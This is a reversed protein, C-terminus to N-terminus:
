HSTAQQKKLSAQKLAALGHSASHCLQKFQQYQHKDPLPQSIDTIGAIVVGIPKSGASVSMAMFFSPLREAVNMPLGGLVNDRNAAHVAIAASRQMLKTFLNNPQLRTQIGILPHDEGLGRQYLMRIASKERNPLLVAAFPLGIDDHIGELLSTMLTNWDGFSAADQELRSQLANFAQQHREAEQEAANEDIDAPLSETPLDQTQLDETPLDQAESPASVGSAGEAANPETAKQELNNQEPAESGDEELWPYLLDSFAPAVPSLLAHIGTSYASHQHRATNFQTERVRPILVDASKSLWHSIIQIWRQSRKSYPNIHLHWALSNAMVPTIEPRQCLHLLPRGKEKELDWPDYRRLMSWQAATPQKTPNWADRALPPLAFRSVLPHWPKMDTGWVQQLATQIELGRSVYYLLNRAQPQQLLWPWLPAFVMMAGWRAYHESNNGKHHTMLAAITGAMSSTILAARYAQEAPDESSASVVPLQKVLRVLEQMGLLSLCNAAGSIQQIAEPNLQVALRQIQLCLAPDKEVEPALDNFNVQKDRLLTHLRSRTEELIPLSNTKLAADWDQKGFPLSTFTRLDPKM